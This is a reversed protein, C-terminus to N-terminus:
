FKLNLVSIYKKDVFMPALNFAGGCEVPLAQGAVLRPTRVCRDKWGVPEEVGPAALGRVPTHAPEEGVGDQRIDTLASFGNVPTVGDPPNGQMAMVREGGIAGSGAFLEVALTILIFLVTRMIDTGERNGTGRETQETCCVSATRPRLREVPNVM